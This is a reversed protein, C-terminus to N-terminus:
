IKSELLEKELLRVGHAIGEIYAREVSAYATHNAKQLAEPKPMVKNVAQALRKKIEDISKDSETNPKATM